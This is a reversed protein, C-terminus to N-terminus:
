RRRDRDSIPASVQRGRSSPPVGRPCGAFPLLRRATVRGHQGRKLLSQALTRQGRCDPTRQATQETGKGADRCVKWQFPRTSPYRQSDGNPGSRQGATRAVLLDMGHESLQKGGDEGDRGKRGGNGEGVIVISLDAIALPGESARGPELPLRPVTSDCAAAEVRDADLQLRPKREVREGGSRLVAVAAPSPDGAPRSYAIM